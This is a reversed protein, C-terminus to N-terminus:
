IANEPDETCSRLPVSKWLSLVWGLGGTMVAELVPVFALDEWDDQSCEIFEDLLL